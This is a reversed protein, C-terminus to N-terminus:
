YSEAEMVSILSGVHAVLQFGSNIRKIQHHTCRKRVIDYCVLKGWVTQFLIRGNRLLCLSSFPGRINPSTSVIAYEKVWKRKGGYDEMAWIHACDIHVNNVICLCSGLVMLESYCEFDLSCDPSPVRYIKEDFLDLSVIPHLGAKQPWQTKAVWHLAGNVSVKTSRHMYYPRTKKIRWKNTGLTCVGIHQDNDINVIRVVKYENTISHFGFGYVSYHHKPLLCDLLINFEGTLPNFSSKNTALIITPLISCDTLFSVHCSLPLLHFLMALTYRFVMEHSLMM